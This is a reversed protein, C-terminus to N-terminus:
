APPRAAGGGQARWPLCTLELISGPLPPPPPAAITHIRDSFQKMNQLLGYKSNVVQVAAM